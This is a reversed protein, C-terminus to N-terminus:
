RSRTSWIRTPWQPLEVRTNPLVLRVADAHLQLILQQEMPDTPWRGDRRWQYPLETWAAQHAIAQSRLLYHVGASRVTWGIVLVCLLLAFGGRVARGMTSVTLLGNRMAGFAALAYFAGAPSMIESKTYAFSVAANAVLVAVGVLIFRATDDWPVGDHRM